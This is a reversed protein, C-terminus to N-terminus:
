IRFMNEAINVIDEFSKIKDEEDAFLPIVYDKASFWTIQRKAYKRTARKLTETAFEINEEGRLYSFLEKYGIAQAATKNSEFVGKELLNQTEEILGESLMQDVRSDIRNYLIQRNKYALCIVTADYVSDTSASLKDLESKTKGTALYIELARIVRKENNPHIAEASIPDIAKLEEYLPMIGESEARASLKVRIESTDISPASSGGRLLTDLYLGTGGCVIPLKGRSCIDDIAESAYKAYDECSFSVDPDVIDILHHKVESMEEKTPKATGINMEKYIQMSDCSVIEGGHRKAIELALASKGSATPGVIAIIKKKESM